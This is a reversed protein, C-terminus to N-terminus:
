LAFASATIASTQPISAALRPDASGLTHLFEQIRLLPPGAMAFLMFPTVEVNGPVEMPPHGTTIGLYIRYGNMRYGNLSIGMCIMFDQIDNWSVSEVPLNEGLSSSPNNGMVDHWQKQTVVYKGLYFENSIKVHHVPGESTSGMDFEGAPILVFEIGISNTFTKHGANPNPFPYPTSKEPIFETQQPVPTKDSGPAMTWYGLALIILVLVVAFFKGSSSKAEPEIKAREDEQERQM